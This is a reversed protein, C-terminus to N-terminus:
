PMRLWRIIDAPRMSMGTSQSPEIGLAIILTIRTPAHFYKGKTTIATSARSCVM